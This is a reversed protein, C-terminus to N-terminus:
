KTTPVSATTQLREMKQRLQDTEKQSRSPGIRSAAGGLLGGGLLTLLLQMFDQQNASELTAIAEPTIGAERAVTLVTSRLKNPDSLVAQLKTVSQTLAMKLSLINDNTIKDTLKMSTMAEQLDNAQDDLQRTLATTVTDIKEKTENDVRAVDSTAEDFLKTLLLGDPMGIFRAAVQTITDLNEGIASHMADTQENLKVIRQDFETKLQDIAAATQTSMAQHQKTMNDDHIQQQQNLQQTFRKADGFTPAFFDDRMASTCGSLCALLSVLICTYRLM